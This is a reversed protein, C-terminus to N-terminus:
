FLHVWVESKTNIECNGILDCINDECREGVDDSSEPTKQEM